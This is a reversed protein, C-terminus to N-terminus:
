PRRVAGLHRSGCPDQVAVPERDRGGVAGAGDGQLRGLGQLADMVGITGAVRLGRVGGIDGGVDLDALGHGDDAIQHQVGRGDQEVCEASGGCLPGVAQVPM